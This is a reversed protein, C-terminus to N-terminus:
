RCVGMTVVSGCLIIDVYRPYLHRGFVPAPHLCHHPTGAFSLFNHDGPFFQPVFPTGKSQMEATCLLEFPSFADQRKYVCLISCHARAVAALRLGDSSFSLHLWTIATDRASLEPLRAPLKDIVLLSDLSLIQVHSSGPQYLGIQNHPADAAILPQGVQAGQQNSIWLHKQTSVDNATSWNLM